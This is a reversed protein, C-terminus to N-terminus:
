LDGRIGKSEGQQEEDCVDAQEDGRQREIRGDGIEREDVLVPTRVAQRGVAIM